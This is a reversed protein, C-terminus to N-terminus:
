RSVVVDTLGDTLPRDDAFFSTTLVVTAPLHHDVAASRRPTWEPRYRKQARSCAVARSSGVAVPAERLRTLM